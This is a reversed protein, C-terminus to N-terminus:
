GDGQEAKWADYRMRLTVVPNANEDPRTNEDTVSIYFYDGDNFGQDSYVQDDEDAAMIYAVDAHRSACPADPTAEDECSCRADGGAADAAEMAAMVRDTLTGETVRLAEAADQMVYYSALINGQVSYYVDTGPVRGQLDLAADSNGAGSFGAFHGTLDVIGFQRSQIEPDAMLMELIRSPHTGRRIQRYILEQNRRSNDVGAQAAAVGVGPVVIAQIDRLDDAPFTRLRAQPVCTASAVVVQGTSRDVAIISWTASAPAPLAAAFSFVFALTALIRTLKSM